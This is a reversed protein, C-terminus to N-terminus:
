GANKLPIKLNNKLTKAERIKATKKCFRKLTSSFLCKKSNKQTKQVSGRTKKFFYAIPKV